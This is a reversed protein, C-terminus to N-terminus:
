ESTHEESRVSSPLPPPQFGKNKWEFAHQNYVRSLSHVGNPQWLSRPDPYAHEDEDIVYGYDTGYTADEVNLRWWGENDPGNMPLTADNVRVAMQKAFPAWIEFQHM